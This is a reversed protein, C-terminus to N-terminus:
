PIYFIKLTVHLDSNLCFEWVNRTWLDVKWRQTSERPSVCPPAQHRFNSHRVLIARYAKFATTRLQFFFLLYQQYKIYWKNSIYNHESQNVCIKYNQISYM